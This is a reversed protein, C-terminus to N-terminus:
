DSNNMSSLGIDTRYFCNKWSISEVANYAKEYAYQLTKDLATVSIVRGGNTVPNGDVLKVGAHFVKVDPGLNKNLGRIADGKQYKVPYGGAAMVVTVATQERWQASTKDLQGTAGQQCLTVLDSKLRPIIVQTEPDGLRCNFELVKPKKDKTIMLGAYLFGVYPTGNNQMGKVTPYIVQDLITQELAKDMLPMPSIAGMGGTNPGRDRNELRKHDKSSVLPLVNEGDVMVMYSLETGSLFEEIVVRHGADGFTKGSLMDTVTAKAENLDDTIVVGKGAALGDAKIVIPLTQKDLYAIAPEVDTFSAYAATPIKNELLFDKCFSKSTELQAAAKTPAFITLGAEQFLDAIGLALPVEPGVITLDIKEERAFILLKDIDTVAININQVKPEIMTGTNGPAAWIRSVHQSQAIKWAIAHERGGNGIILIKMHDDEQLCM